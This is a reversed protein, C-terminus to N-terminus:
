TLKTDVKHAQPFFALKLEYTLTIFARMTFEFQGSDPPFSILTWALSNFDAICSDRVRKTCRTAKASAM